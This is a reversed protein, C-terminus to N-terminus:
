SAWGYLSAFQRAKVQDHAHLIPRWMELALCMGFAYSVGQLALNTWFQTVKVGIVNSDVQMSALVSEVSPAGPALIIVMPVLSLNVPIGKVYEVLSALHTAIFLGLANVVFQPLEAYVNLSIFALLSPYVVVFAYPMDRLRINLSAFCHFLMPINYVAFIMYVPTAFGPCVDSPVLSSTVGAKQGTSMAANQGFLQWGITLGVGMFACRILAAILQSAGSILKGYKIEYAGNILEAGPLWLLMASSWWRPVHCVEVPVIYRWVLPTVIGVAIAALCLEINGLDFRKCLLMVAISFPAILASAGLDQFDGFFACIAAWTFLCQLNLISLWSGYPLPRDIIQNLVLLASRSDVKTGALLRALATVDMLKDAIIDPSVWLVHSHGAVAVELTTTSFHFKAALGLNDCIKLMTLNADVTTQGYSILALSLKLILFVDRWKLCGDYIRQM